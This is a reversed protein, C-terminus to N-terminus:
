GPGRVDTAIRFQAAALTKPSRGNPSTREYENIDAGLNAGM